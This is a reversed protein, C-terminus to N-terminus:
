AQQLYAVLRRLGFVKKGGPKRPAFQVSYEPGSLPALLVFSVRRGQSTYIEVSHSAQLSCMLKMRLQSHLVERVGEVLVNKEERSPPCESEGESEEAEEQEDESVADAWCVEAFADMPARVLQEDLEELWSVDFETRGLCDRGDDEWLRAGMRNPCNNNNYRTDLRLPSALPTPSAASPDWDMPPTRSVHCASSVHRPM